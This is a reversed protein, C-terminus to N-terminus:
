ASVGTCLIVIGDVLPMCTRFVTLDLRAIGARLVHEQVIGRAVQGRKVQHLIECILGALLKIHIGDSVCCSDPCHYQLDGYQHCLKWRFFNGFERVQESGESETIGVQSRCQHYLTYGVVTLAAAGNCTCQGGDHVHFRICGARLHGLLHARKLSVLLVLFM